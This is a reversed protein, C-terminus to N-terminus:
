SPTNYTLKSGSEDSGVLSVYIGGFFILQCGPESGASVTRASGFVASAKCRGNLLWLPLLDRLAFNRAQLPHNIQWDNVGSFGNHRNKFFDREVDFPVRPKYLVHSKAALLSFGPHKDGPWARRPCAPMRLDCKGFLDIGQAGFPWVSPLCCCARM